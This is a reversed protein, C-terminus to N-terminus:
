GEKHIRYEKIKTLLTKYDVELIKAARSKNGKTIALAKRIIGTEADRAAAQAAQKLPMVPSASQLSYDEGIIFEIDQPRIIGDTCMLTARRIVNKLERVNGPWSYSMLMASAEPSIERMQKQLEKSAAAMLKLALFPIDGPRATLPPMTIMYESLRFFLDERFKKERVYSKIDANSAAIIRVDVHVPKTSGIPYIQKEEVARLLKNQLIPPTNELEDIFLTGKHAIEFFGIKKRDAGTFAGREHGFLESEILNEPIVGVDVPQFINRARKSLDHITQAVVSKGTGTDGQIIVSFDTGSVQRVQHIVNKMANSRGFLSELSGLMSEDLEHFAIKLSYAEIARKITLVLKEVQPPKTLFDYAGLKITQVATPIDAYGTIIIVPVSEDIKKIEHLTEIGDMGPMKLDLLICQPHEAQLLKVGEPGGSAQISTLNNKKLLTSLVLRVSRDDDIILIKPFDASEAPMAIERGKQM